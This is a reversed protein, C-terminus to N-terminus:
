TGAPPPVRCTRRSTCAARAERRAPALHEDRGARGLRRAREPARRRSTAFAARLAIGPHVHQPHRGLDEGGDEAAGIEHRGRGNSSASPGAEARPRRTARLVPSTRRSSLASPLTLSARRRSTSSRSASRHAPARPRPLAELADLAFTADLLREDLPPRRALSRTPRSRTARGCRSGCPPTRPTESNACDRRSAGADPAFALPEAARRWPAELAGRRRAKRPGAGAPRHSGEGAPLGGPRGRDARRTAHARRAERDVEEAGAANARALASRASAAM